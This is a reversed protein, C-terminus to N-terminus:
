ADDEDGVGVLNARRADYGKKFGGKNDYDEYDRKARPPRKVGREQSPRQFADVVSEVVMYETHPTAHDDIWERTLIVGDAKFGKLLRFVQSESVGVRLALKHQSMWCWGTKLWPTGDKYTKPADVPYSDAESKMSMVALQNLLFRATPKGDYLESEMIKRPLSHEEEGDERRAKM